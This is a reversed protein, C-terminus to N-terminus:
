FFSPVGINVKFLVFNSTLFTKLFLFICQTTIFLDTSWSSMGIRLMYAGLLVGDLQMHSFSVSSWPSVSSDVIITLFTLVRRDSIFWDLLSLNLLSIISSLLGM